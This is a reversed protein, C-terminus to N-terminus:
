GTAKGQSELLNCIYQVWRTRKDVYRTDIEREIRKRDDRRKVMMEQQANANRPPV